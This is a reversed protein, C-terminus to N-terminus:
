GSVALLAVSDELYPRVIDPIVRMSTMPQTMPLTKPVYPIKRLRMGAQEPTRGAKRDNCPYCCTVINEWVTKGGQIRPVVHDYNLDKMAKRSGCYQCTFHDRTFVNIRSFKVGKKFLSVPKVLRVVAPLLGSWGPVMMQSALHEPYIREDPYEVLVEVKRNSLETIVNQWPAWRHATM